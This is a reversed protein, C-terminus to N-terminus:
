NSSEAVTIVVNGKKHGQEVYYHAEKVMDLNYTKDIVPKLKGSEILENLFILYEVKEKTPYKVSLFSGNKKLVNKCSSKTIKGVADFVVDYITKGKRFDIKHYDIVNDAGKSKVMEVNDNSCVATVDAGFYKAIQVAYTGVSGSAGYIVIKQGYQINAKRLIHLATMGGVPIVAADMFSINDPKKVLVGKKSKEPVCVYEANGGYVLGTTTGYVHDGKNFQKVDSGVAEVVGAFEVGTIKMPKFGFLLGIPVLIFRPIKRLNVDGRTVSSAKVKVMIENQKPIPRELDVLNLVEPSGSKTCVIAKM